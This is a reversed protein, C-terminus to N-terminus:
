RVWHRFLNSGVLHLFICICRKCLPMTSPIRPSALYPMGYMAHVLKTDSGDVMM